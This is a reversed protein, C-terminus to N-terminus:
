KEGRKRKKISNIRASIYMKCNTCIVIGEKNEYRLCELKCWPCWSFAISNLKADILYDSNNSTFSDNLREHYNCEMCPDSPNKM